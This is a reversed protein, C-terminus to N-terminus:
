VFLQVHIDMDAKNTIALLQAPVPIRSRILNGHLHCHFAHYGHSVPPSPLVLEGDSRRQCRELLPAPVGRVAVWPHSDISGVLRQTMRQLMQSFCNNASLKVDQCGTDEQDRALSLLHQHKWTALKKVAMDLTYSTPLFESSSVVM